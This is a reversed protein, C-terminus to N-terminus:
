IIKQNIRKQLAKIGLAQAYIKLWKRIKKDKRTEEQQFILSLFEKLSKNYVNNISGDEEHM